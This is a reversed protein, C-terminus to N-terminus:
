FGGARPNPCLVACPVRSDRRPDKDMSPSRTTTTRKSTISSRSASSALAQTAEADCREDTLAKIAESSKLVRIDNLIGFRLGEIDSMFLPDSLWVEGFELMKAVIEPSPFRWRLGALAM